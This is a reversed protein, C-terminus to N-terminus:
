PKLGTSKSKGTQKRLMDATQTRAFREQVVDPNGNMSHDLNGTVGAPSTGGGRVRSGRGSAGPLLKGVSPKPIAM